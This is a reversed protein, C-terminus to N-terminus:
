RADSMRSRTPSSSAAEPWRRNEVPIRCARLERLRQHTVFQHQQVLRRGPQGGEAPLLHQGQHGTEAGEADGHDHGGVQEVVHLLDAVVHHHDVGAPQDHGPLRGRQEVARARHGHVDAPVVVFQDCPQGTRAHGGRHDRATSAM